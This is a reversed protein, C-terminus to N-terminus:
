EIELCDEFLEELSWEEYMAEAIGSIKLCIRRYMKQLNRIIKTPRNRRRRSILRRRSAIYFWVVDKEVSAAVDFECVEAERGAEVGLVLIGVVLLEEFTGGVLRAVAVGDGEVLDVKGDAVARLDVGPAFGAADHGVGGDSGWVVDRGFNEGTLAVSEGAVPPRGACDHEFTKDAPRREAGFVGVIGVAFDDIPWVREVEGFVYGQAFVGFIEDSRLGGEEM